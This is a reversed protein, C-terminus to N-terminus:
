LPCSMIRHATLFKRFSPIASYYYSMHCCKCLWRWLQVKTHAHMCMACVCMSAENIRGNNSASASPKKQFRGFNFWRMQNSPRWSQFTDGQPRNESYPVALLWKSCCESLVTTSRQCSHIERCPITACSAIHPETCGGDTGSTVGSRGFQMVCGRCFKCTSLGTVSQGATCVWAGFQWYSLIVPLKPSRM